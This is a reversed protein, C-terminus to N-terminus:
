ASEEDKAWAKMETALPVRVLIRTGCSATSNVSFIGHVLNAREQMSILGLGKTRRAEEIDFGTGRDSIELQIEEPTGQLSVSFQSVGSHRLSNQLAEQTVRFLTLSVDTPLSTPVNQENFEVRVEHQQCFERCFSRIAAALGLYELKSSHLKHSLAQVDNAIESCHRRIEDIKPNPSGGSGNTRRNVQELEMSLLALRQCIDDHLERAIRGREEEQAKILKGGISELAERAAKQDTIDMASGILGAFSGHEDIRPVAVDSIWRYVGDQRRLRYERSFGEHRGLALSRTALASQLDGPHVFESWGNGFGTALARGTFSIRRENLYTIKGERDCMWLLAPTAETMVRFLKENEVLRLDNKRKRARQLLLAAIWLMQVLIVGVGAAVFEENRTWATQPYWLIPDPLLASEPIGRSRLERWDVHPRLATVNVASIIESRDSTALDDAAFSLSCSAAWALVCLILSWRTARCGTGSTIRRKTAGGASAAKERM